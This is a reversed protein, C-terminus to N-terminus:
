EAAAKLPSRRSGLDRSALREISARLDALRVRYSGISRAFINYIVVAPIAAILGAATALLAEAIGPAVVALNTTQAKSIGIFSHMIGWVTGFLGIFPATSGITALWGTGHTMRRGLHVELRYLRSAVREKVGDPEQDGSLLIEKAAAAAMRAAPGHGARTSMQLEALTRQEEAHDLAQLLRRQALLLEIGKALLVTWTVISAGILGLMVCRVIIDAHFFLAPLSLDQPLLSTPVEPPSAPTSAPALDAGTSSATASPPAVAPAREASQAAGPAAAIPPAGQQAAVPVTFLLMGIALGFGTRRNWGARM